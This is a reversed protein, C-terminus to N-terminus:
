WLRYADITAASARRSSGAPAGGCGSSSLSSGGGRRRGWSSPSSRRALRASSRRSGRSARSSSSGTSSRVCLRTSRTGGARLSLLSVCLRWRGDGDTVIARRRCWGNRCSPDAGRPAHQLPPRRATTAACLTAQRGAARDQRQNFDALVAAAANRSAKLETVLWKSTVVTAGHVNCATTIGSDSTAAWVPLGAARMERTAGEIYADASEAAYVVGVLGGAYEDFRDKGFNGEAGNADFVVTANFRRIAFSAVEELLMQRAIALEGKVFRKKLRPWANVVNYGDILLTPMSLDLGGVDVKEEDGRGTRTNNKEKKRFSTRVAPKAPGSRAAADYAKVFAIQKRVSVTHSAAGGGGSVRAAAAAPPPPPPPPADDASAKPRRQKGDGKGGMLLPPARPAAARSAAHLPAYLAPYPAAALVLWRVLM